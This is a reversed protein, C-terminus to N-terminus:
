SRFVAAGVRLEGVSEEDARGVRTDRPHVGGRSEGDHVHRRNFTTGCIPTDIKVM